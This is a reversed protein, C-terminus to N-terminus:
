WLSASADISVDKLNPGLLEAPSVLGLLNNEASPCTVNRMLPQTNHHLSEAILSLRSCLTDLPNNKAGGVNGSSPVIVAEAVRLSAEPQSIADGTARALEEIQSHDSLLDSLAQEYSSSSEGLGLRRLGQQFSESLFSGTYHLVGVAGLIATALPQLYQRLREYTLIGKTAEVLMRQLPVADAATNLKSIESALEAIGHAAHQAQEHGFARHLLNWFGVEARDRVTALTTSTVNVVKDVGNITDFVATTTACVAHAALNFISSGLTSLLIFAGVSTKSFMDQMQHLLDTMSIEKGSMKVWWALLRRFPGFVSLSSDFMKIVADSFLVHQVFWKMIYGQAIPNSMLPCLVRSLVNKVLAQFVLGNSGLQMSATVVFSNAVGLVWTHLFFVMVIKWKHRKIADWCAEVMHTAADAVHLPVVVLPSSTGYQAVDLLKSTNRAYAVLRRAYARSKAAFSRLGGHRSKSCAELTGAFCQEMLLSLGTAYGHLERVAVELPAALQQNCSTFREFRHSLRNMEVLVLEVLQPAWQKVELLNQEFRQEQTLLDAKTYADCCWIFDDDLGCRDHREVVVVETTQLRWHPTTKQLEECKRMAVDSAIESTLCRGTDDGECPNLSGSPCRMMNHADLASDCSEPVCQTGKAVLGSGCTCVPGPALNQWKFECTGECGPANDICKDVPHCERLLFDDLLSQRLTGADAEPGMESDNDQPTSQAPLTAEEESTASTRSRKTLSASAGDVDSIVRKKAAVGSQTTSALSSQQLVLECPSTAGKQCALAICNASLECRAKAEDLPYRKPSRSLNAVPLSDHHRWTCTSCVGGVLVAHVPDGKDSIWSPCACGPKDPLASMMDDSITNIHLGHMALAEPQRMSYLCGFECSGCDRRDQALYSVVSNLGLSISLRHKSDPNVEDIESYFCCQYFADDDLFVGSHDEHFTFGNCWGSTRALVGLTSRANCASRCRRFVESASAVSTM